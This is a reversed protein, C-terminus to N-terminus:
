LTLAYAEERGLRNEVSAISSLFRQSSLYPPDAGEMVMSYANINGQIKMLEASNNGQIKALKALNNGQIKIRKHVKAILIL